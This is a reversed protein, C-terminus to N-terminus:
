SGSSSARGGFGGRSVSAISGSPKTYSGQTMNMKAGVPSVSHSYGSYFWRAGGTYGPEECDEDEVRVETEQDVCARSYDPDASNFWWIAGATALVGGVVVVVSRKRM